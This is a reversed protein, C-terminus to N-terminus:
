SCLTLWCASEWRGQQSARTVKSIEVMRDARFNFTVVADGDQVAGVAPAFPLPVAEDCCSETTQSLLQSCSPQPPLSGPPEGSPHIVVLM